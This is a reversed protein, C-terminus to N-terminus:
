LRKLVAETVDTTTSRGGLDPTLYRGESLVADVAMNIKAAPEVYGLSSLLLAASRISAVPNAINKGEIDPASGHVPEGMVFNDGANISPVLGLSGVLAAAGDSIIDGYLNPAVCVDFFEPERFMRYVMSDVIQEELKIGAYKKGDKGEKVAGVSERFLGDTVSLVNSKHIITVKPEGKWWPNKGAARAAEREQGRQVAIDFAMRGIRSSAKASIKRYAIAVRDDGEGSIEEKKIYLCETNERVIVMDVLKDSPQGPIPVASVPRVNAYLDLHKRLAVIPSSYGAVKHSPSSVSGFMAGDCEKLAVVTEEPLAKGNKNFEEWGALLPLFTIKPLQSGLAEIVRQSAPLVEKGIGDAPIMGLKLATRKLANAM